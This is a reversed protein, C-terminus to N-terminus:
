YRRSWLTAWTGDEHLATLATRLRDSVGRPSDPHAALYLPVSVAPVPAVAVLADPDYGLAAARLPLSLADGAVLDVRHGFLMRITLEASSVWDVTFGHDALWVAKIDRTQGAVRWHRLTLPDASTPIDTRDRLRYLNVHYPAVAGLWVFRNEREPTRALAYIYTGPTSQAQEYARVWPLATITCALNARHCAEQVITTAIGGVEASDSVYPPFPTTLITVAAADPTSPPLSQAASDRLCASILLAATLWVMFLRPPPRNM